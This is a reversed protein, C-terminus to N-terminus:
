CQWFCLHLGCLLFFLVFSLVRVQHHFTAQNTFHEGYLYSSGLEIGLLTLLSPTAAQVELALAASPTRTSGQGPLTGSDTLELGILNHGQGGFCSPHLESSHRRLNAEPWWM